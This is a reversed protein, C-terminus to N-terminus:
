APPSCTTGRVDTKHDALRKQSGADQMIHGALAPTECSRSGAPINITSQPERFVYRDCFSRVMQIM